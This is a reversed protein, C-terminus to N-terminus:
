SNFFAGKLIRDDFETMWTRQSYMRIQCSLIQGWLRTSRWFFAITILISILCATVPLLSTASCTQCATEKSENCRCVMILMLLLTILWPWSWWQHHHDSNTKTQFVYKQCLGDLNAVYMSTRTAGVTLPALGQNFAPISALTNGSNVSSLPLPPAGAVRWTRKRM